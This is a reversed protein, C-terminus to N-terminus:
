ILSFELLVLVAPLWTSATAPGCGLCPIYCYMDVRKKVRPYVMLPMLNLTYYKLYVLICGMNLM